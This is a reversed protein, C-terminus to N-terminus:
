GIDNAFDALIVVARHFNGLLHHVHHGSRDPFLIKGQIQLRHVGDLHGFAVQIFFEGGRLHVTRVIRRIRESTGIALVPGEQFQRVLCVELHEFIGLLPTQVKHFGKAGAAAQRQQFQERRVPQFHGAAVQGVQRQEAGQGLRLDGDDQGGAHRAFLLQVIRQGDDGAVVVLDGDQVADGLIRRMRVVQVQIGDEIQFLM